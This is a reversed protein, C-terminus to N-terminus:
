SARQLPEDPPEHPQEDPHAPEPKPEPGKAAAPRPRLLPWVARLRETASVSTGEDTDWGAM